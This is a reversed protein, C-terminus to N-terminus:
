ESRIEILGETRLKELLALLDGECRAPEVDYESVIAERLDLVTKPEGLM